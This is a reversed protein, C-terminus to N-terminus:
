RMDPNAIQGVPNVVYAVKHGSAIRNKGQM